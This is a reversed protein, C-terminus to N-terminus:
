KKNKKYWEKDGYLKEACELCLGHSFLADTHKEIYSELNNWYGEDDRIKKCNSCIPVLGSM